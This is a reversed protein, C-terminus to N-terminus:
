ISTLSCIAHSPRFEVEHTKNASRLRDTVSECGDTDRECVGVPPELLVRKHPPLVESDNIQKPM